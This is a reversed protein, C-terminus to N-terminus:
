ITRAVEGSRGHGDGGVLDIEEDAAIKLLSAMAVGGIDKRIFAKKIPRWEL